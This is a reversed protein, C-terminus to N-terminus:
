MVDARQSVVELAVRKARDGEFGLLAVLVAENENEPGRLNAFGPLPAIGRIDASLLFESLSTPSPHQKYKGPEAYMVHFTELASLGARVLPAWVGHPVGSIDVYAVRFESIMNVLAGQDNLAVVQPAGGDRRYTLTTSTVETIEFCNRSRHAACINWIPARARPEPSPASFVYAADPSLDSLGPSQLRLTKGASPRRPTV